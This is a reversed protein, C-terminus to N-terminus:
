WSVGISELEPRLRLTVDSICEALQSEADRGIRSAMERANRVEAAIPHGHDAMCALTDVRIDVDMVADHTSVYAAQVTWLHQQSCDDSVAWVDEEAMAGIPFGFELTLNDVPSLVPETIGNAGREACARTNDIAQEYEAATVVGDELLRVQSDWGNARAEAEAEAVSQYVLERVVESEDDGPGCASLVMGGGGLAVGILLAHRRM